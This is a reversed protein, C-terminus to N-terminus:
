GGLRSGGAGSAPASASPAPDAPRQPPARRNMRRRLMVQEALLRVERAQKADALPGDYLDLLRRYAALLNPQLAVSRRLAVAAEEPRGLRALAVGLHYHAEAYDGRLGVARLALEASREFQGRGLASSALGHWARDNDGDLELARHFAREAEDWGRLRLYAQGILVHLEPLDPSVREAERLHELAPGARRAAMELAGRALNVLPGRYGRDWMAEAIRRCDDYRGVAYYAEFLAHQYGAHEPRQRVLGELLPIARTPQRADVLSRALNYRNEELAREVMRRANEDPPEVYGLEILHRIAELSEAPAERLEAPHQGGDGGIPDWSMVRDVEPAPDMAEVWPRGDMDAGVPLDFLTLVTPTVDLLGAGDLVQGRRVRPGHMVCVGQPRHNLSLGDLTRPTERLRQPGSRYGHDSVLIVTTEDGALQLLRGLMM